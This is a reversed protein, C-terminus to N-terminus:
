GTEARANGAAQELLDRLAGRDVDQLKKIYLCGKGMKYKGLRSLPEPYQELYGMVYLTLAQKRPSFGVIFTDGERGSAYKYHYDGFGVISTGWMRPEAQTVQRMLDVLALCDQRRGADPLNNIFAIVSEDSPETKPEAV